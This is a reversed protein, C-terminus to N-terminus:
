LMEKVIVLDVGSVTHNKEQYQMGYVSQVFPALIKVQKELAFVRQRIQWYRINSKIVLRIFSLLQKTRVEVGQMTDGLTNQSM